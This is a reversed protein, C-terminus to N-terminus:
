DAGKEGIPTPLNGGQLWVPNPPQGKLPGKQHVRRQKCKVCEQYLWFGDDRHTYWHHVLHFAM